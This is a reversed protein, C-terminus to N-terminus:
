HENRLKEKLAELETSLVSLKKNEIDMIATLKPDVKDSNQQLEVLIPAFDKEVKKFSDLNKHVGALMELLRDQM